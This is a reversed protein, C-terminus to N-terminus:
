DIIRTRANGRGAIPLPITTVRDEEEELARKEILEGGFINNYILNYVAFSSQASKKKQKKRKLGKRAALTYASILSLFDM